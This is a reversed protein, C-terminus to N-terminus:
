KRHSATDPYDSHSFLKEERAFHFKTYSVLEDLIKSLSEKGHGSQMADFLQNLLGVLKQHDMDLVDVGVSMKENWSMLPM